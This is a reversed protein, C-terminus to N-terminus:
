QNARDGDLTRQLKEMFGSVEEHVNETAAIVLVNGIVSAQCAGGLQSWADPHVSATVAELLKDSEETLMEPVRYMEVTMNKEAAETTTIQLVEDKIMYTLELQRLMLRLLSRLTVNHLAISVPVDTTLGVDELARGDIVMPISHQQSLQLVADEL